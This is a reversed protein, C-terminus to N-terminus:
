RITLAGCYECICTKDHTGYNLVEWRHFGIRCRLRKPKRTLVLSRTLARVGFIRIVVPDIKGFTRM